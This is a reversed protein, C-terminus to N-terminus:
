TELSGKKNAGIIKLYEGIEFIDTLSKDEISKYFSVAVDFNSNSSEEVTMDNATEKQENM